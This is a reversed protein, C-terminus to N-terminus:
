CLAHPGVRWSKKANCVKRKVVPEGNADSEQVNIKQFCHMGSTTETARVKWAHNHPCRGVTGFLGVFALFRMAVM